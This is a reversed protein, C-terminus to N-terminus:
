VDGGGEVAPPPEVIADERTEEPASDDADSPPGNGAPERAPPVMVSQTVSLTAFSEHTADAPLAGKEFPRQKAGIEAAIASDSVLRETFGYPVYEGPPLVWLHFQNSTDVLRSEAPYIEIAEAEPAVIENKIRQFDRWDHRAKRDVTRISLWFGGDPLATRIVVYRSNIFFEGHEKKLIEAALEPSMAANPKPTASKFPTWPPLKFKM